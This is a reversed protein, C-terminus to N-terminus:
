NGYRGNLRPGGFVLRAWNPFDVLVHTMAGDADLDVSVGNQTASGNNNWDVAITNCVGQPENLANETLSAVMGQSYDIVNGVAAPPAGNAETVGTQGYYFPPCIPHTQRWANSRGSRLQWDYSMVSSYAPNYQYHTAGGHRQQLDHGLEHMLTEAGSRATQYAAPFDDFSVICDDGPGSFDTGAANQSPDSIGSSGGPRANSWICYYYLRGRHTNDFNATKLTYFNAFGGAANDAGTLDITQWYPVNGTTDLILHIGDTGTPNIIPAAAFADQIAQFTAATPSNALGQMVDVELLLDPRFRDAGLAPLNVDVVGDGDADYGHLEWDDPIDDGDSDLTAASAPLVYNLTNSPQGDRNRVSVAITAALTREGPAALLALYHYIPYGLTAPQIGLLDNHLGRYAVTPQVVGDVLVEAGVDIDAGQVILWTKVKGATTFSTGILTVRDLRPAGFPVPPTVNFPVVNSRHGSRILQINHGGQAAAPPVSFMYGGLFGGPLTTETATGADWLLSTFIVDGSVSVLTRDPGSAPDLSTIHPPPCAPLAILLLLGLSPKKM